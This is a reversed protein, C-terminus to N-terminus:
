DIKEYRTIAAVATVEEGTEPDEVTPIRKDGKIPFNRQGRLIAKRRKEGAVPRPQAQWQTTIRAMPSGQLTNYLMKIVGAQTRPIDTSPIGCAQLVAAAKCSGNEMPQSSVFDSVYRNDNPTGPDVTNARIFLAYYKVNGNDDDAARINPFKESISLRAVYKGDDIPAVGGYFQADPDIEPTGFQGGDEEHLPLDNVNIDRAM